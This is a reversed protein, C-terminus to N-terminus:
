PKCRGVFRPYLVVDRIHHRGLMWTLFREFGLGFGGHPCTGFRRLDIYWDYNAPDIGERKFGAMLEEENWLRMSGGVIEGVGPMLVDVSETVRNDEADRQMYFSKIEAPFRNLMIPENIKDTM